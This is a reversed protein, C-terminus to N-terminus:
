MREKVGIRILWANVPYLARSEHGSETARRHRRYLGLWVVSGFLMTVPWVMNMIAMGRPRRVVDVTTVVACSIAVLLSLSAFMTLRLPFAGPMLEPEITARSRM